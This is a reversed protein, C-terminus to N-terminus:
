ELVVIATGVSREHSLSVLWSGIGESRFFDTLESSLLRIEPKGSKACPLTEMSKWTAVPQIKSPLAKYFAEKAAWRVAFHTAPHAKESCYVIEADTFVKELFHMGYKEIMRHIRGIEVIDIGIGRVVICGEDTVCDPVVTRGLAGPHVSRESLLWGATLKEAEGITYKRYFYM